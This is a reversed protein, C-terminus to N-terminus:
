PHLRTGRRIYLCGIGKPAHIKHASLSLLDCGIAEVDVSIKGAAQVADTHFWIKKGGKRLERIHKGIEEVPQITGIENNATMISVLITDEGIAAKVDEIRVIGNEYVPLYTVECNLKELDECVNKVASHEIASTVIHPRSAGNSGGKQGFAELLGRIGLNNSETGGSTFVIENPRANVLAAIQHRAKDVASRTEQGFHHISSANGFKETLYPMMAEIVEPDIPTTASNDLYIRRFM